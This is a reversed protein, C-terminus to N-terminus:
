KRCHKKVILYKRTNLEECQNLKSSFLAKIFLFKPNRDGMRKESDNFSEGQNEFGEHSSVVRM